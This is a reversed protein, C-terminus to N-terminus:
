EPHLADCESSDEATWLAVEEMIERFRAGVPVINIQKIAQVYAGEKLSLEREMFLRMEPARWNNALSGIHRMFNTWKDTRYHMRPCFYCQGLVNTHYRYFKDYLRLAGYILADQDFTCGKNAM